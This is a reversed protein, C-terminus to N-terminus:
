TMKEFCPHTYITNKFYHLLLKFIGYLYSCQNKHFLGLSQSNEQPKNALSLILAVALNSCISTLTFICNKEEGLNRSERLRTWAGWVLGQKLSLFHPIQAVPPFCCLTRHLIHTMILSVWIETWSIGSM